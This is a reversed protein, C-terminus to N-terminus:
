FVTRTCNIIVKGSTAIYGTIHSLLVNEYFLINSLEFNSIM